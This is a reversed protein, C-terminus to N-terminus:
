IINRHLIFAEASDIGVLSGRHEALSILSKVSRAHPWERMESSYAELAKIKFELTTSIDEFWNPKFPDSMTMSEWNTASPVEFKLIQRVLSKPQPRCATFVAENVIRHDINLDSGHHTVVRQPRLKEIKAEVVKIIDLLDISDMRNDPFDLIEMSSLQLIESAKYASQHLNNIEKKNLGRNRKKERSTIGEAKIVSHVEYGKRIWKLMSGVCGLVEDDPHAAIVLTIM